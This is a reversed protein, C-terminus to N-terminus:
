RSGNRQLRFVLYNLHCIATVLSAFAVPLAQGWLGWRYEFLNPCYLSENIWKGYLEPDCGEVPVPNIPTLMTIFIYIISILAICSQISAVSRYSPQEAPDSFGKYATALSPLYLVWALSWPIRQGSQNDAAVIFTIVAVLLAWGLSLKLFGHSHYPKAEPANQGPLNLNVFQTNMPDAKGDNVSKALRFSGSLERKQVPDNSKKFEEM